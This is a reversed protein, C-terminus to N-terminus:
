HAEIWDLIPEWVEADADDALWPDDHGWDEEPDASQSVIRVSVDPSAVLTTTHAGIAGFAGAVGVYLVPIRIEALGDDFPSGFEECGIAAGDLNVRLPQFASAGSLFTFWAEPETYLLETVLTDPDVLGGVSHFHPISGGGASAGLWEALDANSLSPLFPSPDGPAVTALDGVDAVFRFDSAAIGGALAAEISAHSACDAQRLAEDDYKFANEISVLGRLHRFSPPRATEAGAQAWGLQGGRSFGVLHLRGPGSGTLTRTVRAVTLGLDLDGLQTALGWGAMFSLDATDGPVRVWRFDIGWVDIGREALYTAMGGPGSSAGPLFTPEFGWGDGHVLFAGRGTRDPVWPARERVVRHMRVVDHEGAGVSVEFRYHAVDETLPIREVAALGSLGPFSARAALLAGAPASRMDDARSASAIGSASLAALVVLTIVAVIKRM